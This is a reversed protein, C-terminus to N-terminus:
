ISRLAELYAGHGGTVKNKPRPPSPIFTLRPKMGYKGLKKALLHM